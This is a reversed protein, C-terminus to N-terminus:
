NGKIVYYVSGKKEQYLHNKRIYKYVEGTLYFRAKLYNNQKLYNRIRTSSIAHEKLPAIFINQKYKKYKELLQNIEDTERKIM